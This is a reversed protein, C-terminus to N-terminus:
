KCLRPPTSTLAVSSLDLHYNSRFKFIFWELDMGWLQWAADRYADVRAADTVIFSTCNTLNNLPKWHSKYNTQNQVVQHNAHLLSWAGSEWGILYCSKRARSKGALLSPQVFNRQTTIPENAKRQSFFNRYNWGWSFTTKHSLYSRRSSSKLASYDRHQHKNRFNMTM